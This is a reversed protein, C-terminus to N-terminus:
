QEEHAKKQVFRIGLYRAKYEIMINNYRMVKYGIIKYIQIM